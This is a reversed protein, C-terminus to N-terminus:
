RTTVDGRSRRRSKHELCCLPKGAAKRHQNLRCPTESTTIILNDKAFVVKSLKVDKGIVITGTKENIVVRAPTDPEVRLNNIM